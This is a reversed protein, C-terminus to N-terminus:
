SGQFGRAKKELRALTDRRKQLAQRWRAPCADASLAVGTAGPPPTRSVEPDDDLMRECRELRTRAGAADELVRAGVARYFDQTNVRKDRPKASLQAEIRELERDLADLSQHVGAIISRLEGGVPLAGSSNPSIRRSEFLDILRVGKGAALHLAVALDADLHLLEPDASADAAPQLPITRFLATDDTKPSVPTLRFTSDGFEDVAWLADSPGLLARLLLPDASRERAAPGCWLLLEEEARALNTGKPALSADNETGRRVISCAPDIWCEDAIFGLAAHVASVHGERPARLWVVTHMGSERLSLAVDRVVDARWRGGTLELVFTDARVARAQRIRDAIMRAARATSLENAVSHQVLRSVRRAPAPQRETESVDGPPDPRAPVVAPTVLMGLVLAALPISRHSM